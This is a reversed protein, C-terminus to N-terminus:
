FILSKEIFKYKPESKKSFKLYKSFFQLNLISYSLYIANKFLNVAEYKDTHSIIPGGKSASFITFVGESEDNVIYALIPKEKIKLNNM